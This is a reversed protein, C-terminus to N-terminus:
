KRNGFNVQYAFSFGFILPKLPMSFGKSNPDFKGHSYRIGSTKGFRLGVYWGFQFFNNPNIKILRNINLELDSSNCKANYVSDSDYYNGGKDYNNFHSNVNYFRNISYKVSVSRYKKKKSMKSTTSFKTLTFGLHAGNAIMIFDPDFMDLGKAQFDTSGIGMGLFLQHKRIASDFYFKCISYHFGLDVKQQLGGGSVQATIMSKRLAQSNSNVSFLILIGLFIIQLKYKGLTMNM